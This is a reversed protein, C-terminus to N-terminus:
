SLGPGSVICTTGSRFKITMLGNQALTRTANSTTSGAITATATCTITIAGASQNDVVVVDGASMVGSPITVGGTANVCKGRDTAIFAGTTVSATPLGKYGVEGSAMTANDAMTVIGSFNGLVSAVQSWRLPTTIDGLSLTNTANPVIEASMSLASSQFEGIQTGLVSVTFAGAARRWFGTTPESTFSFAPSGVTGDVGRFAALMGGRGSRDLSNTMESGIDPMTANAWAATITTLTVVPNGAPLTYVGSSNRPM